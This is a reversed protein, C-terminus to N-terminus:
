ATQPQHSHAAQFLMEVGPAQLWRAGHEGHRHAYIEVDDAHIVSGDCSRCVLNRCVACTGIVKHVTGCYSCTPRKRPPRVSHRLADWCGIRNVPGDPDGTYEYVATRLEGTPMVVANFKYLKGGLERHWIRGMGTVIGGEPRNV